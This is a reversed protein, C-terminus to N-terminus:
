AAPPSHKPAHPLLLPDVFLTRAKSATSTLASPRLRLAIPAHPAMARGISWAAAICPNHQSPEAAQDLAGRLAEHPSPLDTTHAAGDPPREAEEFRQHEVCFRDTHAATLNHVAPEIPVAAVGAVLVGVLIREASRLRPWPQAM